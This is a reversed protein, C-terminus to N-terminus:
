AGGRRLSRARERPLIRRRDRDALSRSICRSGPWGPRALAGFGQPRLRPPQRATCRPRPPPQDHCVTVRALPYHASYTKMAERAARVASANGAVFVGAMAHSALTLLGGFAHKKDNNELEFGVVAVHDAQPMDVFRTARPADIAKALAALGVPMPLAWVMDVYSTTLEAGVPHPSPYSEFVVFGAAEGRQRLTARTKEAWPGEGGGGKKKRLKSPSLTALTPSLPEAALKPLRRADFVAVGDGGFYRAQTRALRAARVALNDTTGGAAALFRFPAGSVRLNALDAQMGRTSADSGEVEWGAVLLGEPRVPIAADLKELARRQATTLARFWAVDLVPGYGPLKPIAFEHVVKFGLSTGISAVNEHLSKTATRM